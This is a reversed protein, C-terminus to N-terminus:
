SSSPYPSEHLQLISCSVNIFSSSLIVAPSLLARMLQKHELAGVTQLDLCYILWFAVTGVIVRHGSRNQQGSICLSFSFILGLKTPKCLM